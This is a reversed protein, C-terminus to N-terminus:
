HAGSGQRAAWLTMVERNEALNDLYGQRLAADTITDAVQLVCRHAEPLAADARSDGAQAWVRYLKLHILPKNAGDLPDNEGAAPAGLTASPEVGAVTLLRAVVAQAQLFDGRALALRAQGELANFPGTTVSM